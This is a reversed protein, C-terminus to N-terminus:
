GPIELGMEQLLALWERRSEDRDFLREATKRAERRMADQAKPDKCAAVLAEGLAAPDFFPLLRGNVGDEIV